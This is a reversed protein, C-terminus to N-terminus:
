GGFIMAMAIAKGVTIGGAAWSLTGNGAADTLSAGASGFNTPWTYTRAAAAAGAQLTTLHASGANALAIAGTASSPTGLQQTGTFTNAGLIAATGVVGAAPLGTCSTLTGSSPTGLVPTVLTPSTAFVAAGSGTEDTLATALQASTFSGLVAANGVSTVHGTLNANTTVTGAILGAATGTCNTLVGSAPTGLVPAVLTPGSVRAFVGTGSGALTAAPVVLFVDKTGASFSVASGSNSSALVSDRSLTTGSLTYTGLGVEWEAGGVIAYNCTNTNGVVSFAQYGTSAGLLTATGTGTVTTTEKVRDALVFSM